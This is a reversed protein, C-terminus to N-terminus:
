KKSKRERRVLSLLGFVGLILLTCTGPEPVGIDAYLMGNEFGLYVDYLSDSVVAISSLTNGDLTGHIEMLDARRLGMEGEIQFTV